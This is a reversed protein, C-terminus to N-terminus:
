PDDDFGRHAYAILSAAYNIIVSVFELSNISILKGNKNNALYLKTRRQVEMPWQLHWWFQLDFSFGGGGYLCADGWVSASPDRSICHAIPTSFSISPDALTTTLLDIEARLTANIWYREKCRHVSTAIQRAAFNVERLDETTTTLHKNKVQRIILKFQKSTHMLYQTNSRLSNAISSYIQGMLHFVWRAGEGLRGLKGALKEIESVTFSRRDKHWTTMLLALVSVRYEPTIAVTMQRTNVALGLLVAKHSVLMGTWKDMALNRQRYKDDPFGMVVYIAEIVSVLAQRMHPAIEALLVDDVYIHSPTNQHRGQPDLVGNNRSDATASIFVATSENITPDWVLMDLYDQYKALLSSRPFYAKALAMIGRRFAEWSTPSCSSGFVMAAALYLIPGIVFSMAGALDAHNKPWRFCAKIDPAAVLIDQNPYTIRTNYVHTLFLEMSNGFTIPAETETPTIENM